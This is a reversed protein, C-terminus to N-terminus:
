SVHFYEELRTKLPNPIRHFKIFEKISLLHSHYRATGSYLRAIMASVKGFITAYM